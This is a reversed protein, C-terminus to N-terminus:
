RISGNSATAATSSQNAFVADLPQAAFTGLNASAM